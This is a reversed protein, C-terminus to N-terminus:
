DVLVRDIEREEATIELPAPTRNLSAEMQQGAYSRLSESLDLGQSTISLEM